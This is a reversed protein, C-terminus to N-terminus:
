EGIQDLLAAATEWLDQGRGREQAATVKEPSMSAMLAEIPKGVADVFWRSNAVFPYRSALAYLEVAQSIRGDRALVYAALPLVSILITFSRVQLATQLSGTISQRAEDIQGLELQALGLFAQGHRLTDKRNFKQFMAIHEALLRQAETYEGAALSLKGLSILASAMGLVRDMKKWNSYVKEALIHAQKYQGSHIRVRIQMEELAIASEVRGIENYFALGEDLITLAEDFKGRYLLTSSLLSYPNVIKEVGGRKLDLSLSERLLRESEELRGQILAVNGLGGLLNTTWITNGLTQWMALAQQFGQQAEDYNGARVAGWANGGTIYAIWERDRLEQFIQLSQAKLNADKEQDGEDRVVRSLHILLLAEERRTDHGALAARQLLDQSQQLLKAARKHQGLFERNFEAQWILMKAQVRLSEGADESSPLTRAQLKSNAEAFAAEGEQYRAQWSYAEGMSEIARDLWDFRGREAAWKWAARVNEFDLEIAAFAAVEKGRKWESERQHLAACYYASHRDRATEYEAPSQSLRDAAFQRLLEHVSFRGNDDRNLLSKNVLVMLERLSAGAVEQAALQSFGGRFISLSAFVQQEYESLANWSSEFVARISQHRSPADQLDTELFDLSRGIEAAIEQPSLMEMWAAALLIGLPMGQTLRCINSVYQGDDTAWGYDPRSRKAGQMFLQVSGYARADESLKTDVSINPDPFDMGDIHFLYEGQVRLKARSTALVDVGTAHQLIDTVIVIGDLLHECNDMVLLMQKRRLYNQLQEQATGGEYFSFNVAQAITPVIAGSDQLPALSVFHVGDAYRDRHAEAAALALRTKGMGGAGLITVLRADPDIILGDLVALEATRGIFPTAQPPLNHRVQAQKAASGVLPSTSPTVAGTDFEDRRIAECLMKTEAAPEVGLEEWLLQRCAECQMLAAGRQGSQALLTILQRHAEERWPELALLHTTHEIATARGDEGQETYHAILRHLAQLALERLHARQALVWMEFEPAGRVYFGDLFDGRYLEVAEQMRKVPARASANDVNAEFAEIDLRYDSDRNFAVMQRTITLHDGFLRRLNSLAQSLNMRAKAEPMGGWLLGALAPRSHARGTIALYCLLAQAKLSKFDTVPLGDRRIKISGLLALELKKPM